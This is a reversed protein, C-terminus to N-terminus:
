SEHSMRGETCLEVPAPAFWQRPRVNTANHVTLTCFAVPISHHPTTVDVPAPATSHRSSSMNLHTGDRHM